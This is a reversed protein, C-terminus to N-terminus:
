SDGRQELLGVHCQDIQMRNRYIGPGRGTGATIGTMNFCLRAKNTKHSSLCWLPLLWYCRVKSMLGASDEYM